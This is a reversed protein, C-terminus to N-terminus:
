IMEKKYIKLQKEFVMLKGLWDYLKHCKDKPCVDKLEKVTDPHPIPFVPNAKAIFTETRIERVSDSCGSTFM